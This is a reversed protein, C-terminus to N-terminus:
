IDSRVESLVVWDSDETYEANLAVSDEVAALM